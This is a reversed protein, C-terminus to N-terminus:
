RVWGEIKGATDGALREDVDGLFFIGCHAGVEDMGTKDVRM